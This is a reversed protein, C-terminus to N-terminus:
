SEPQSAPPALGAGVLTAMAIADTDNKAVGASELGEAVGRRDAAGRNQSVKWKGSLTLLPIEIGVIARLMTAIYDAPADDVAWPTSRPAEHTQTLRKVLALLWTSDEIARLRGRAQVTVYNWTPVVKGHEAKSPYLAPSVYAQPGQFVVLTDVDTRSERWLPNARAVHGRLAGFPAPDPDLLFPIPNAQLGRDALTILLGLPQARILTHLVEVRSEEFHAPLYM